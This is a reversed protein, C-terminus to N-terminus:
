PGCTLLGHPSALHAISGYGKRAVLRITLYITIAYLQVKQNLVYLQKNFGDPVPVELRKPLALCIVFLFWVFRILARGAKKEIEDWM